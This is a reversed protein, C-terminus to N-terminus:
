PERYVVRDSILVRGSPTKKLNSKSDIKSVFGVSAGLNKQLTVAFALELDIQRRM